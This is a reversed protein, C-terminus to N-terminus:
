SGFRNEIHEKYERILCLVAKEMSMVSTGGELAKHIERVKKVFIFNPSDPSFSQITSEKCDNLYRSLYYVYLPDVDHRSYEEGDHLPRFNILAKVPPIVKSKNENSDMYEAISDMNWTSATLAQILALIRVTMDSNTESKLDLYNYYDEWDLELLLVTQLDAFTEQFLYRIQESLTLELYKPSLDTGDYAYVPGICMRELESDFSDRLKINILRIIEEKHLREFYTAECDTLEPLTIESTVLRNLIENADNDEHVAEKNAWQPFMFGWVADFLAQNLSPNHLLENPLADILKSVKNAYHNASPAYESNSNILADYLTKVTKAKDLATFEEWQLGYEHGIQTCMRRYVRSVICHLACKLMYSSRKERCRRTEGVLHAIEHTLIETTLQLTYLSREGIGILIFQDNPLVNQRALSQAKLVRTFQPSIAFGYLIGDGDTDDRLSNILLQSVATYYAMIRPPMDFTEVRFAPAQISQRNSQNMSDILTLISTFFSSMGLRAEKLEGIDLDERDLLRTEYEFLDLFQPVLCIGMNASMKNDFFTSAMLSANSLWNLWVYDVAVELRTCCKVYVNKFAESKKALVTRIRSINIATETHGNIQSNEPVRTFINLQRTTCWRSSNSEVSLIDNVAKIWSLNAETNHLGIDSRGLTWMFVTSPFLMKVEEIAARASTYDNVGIRFDAMFTETAKNCYQWDFSFLTISDVILPEAVQYDIRFMRDTYDQFSNGRYFLILDSYDFGFYILHRRGIFSESIKVFVDNLEAERGLHFMTMFLIPEEDSNSWFEEIQEKTYGIIRDDSEDKIDTFLLLSQQFEAHEPNEDRLELKHNKHYKVVFDYATSLPQDGLGEIKVINISDYYSFMDMSNDCTKMTQIERSRLFVARADIKAGSVPTRDDKM